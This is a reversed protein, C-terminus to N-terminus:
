CLFCVAAADQPDILAGSGCLLKTHFESTFLHDEIFTSEESKAMVSGTDLNLKRIIVHTYAAHKSHFTADFARHVQDEPNHPQQARTHPRPPQGPPETTQQWSPEPVKELERKISATARVAINKISQFTPM